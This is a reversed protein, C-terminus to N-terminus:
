TSAATQLQPTGNQTANEQPTHTSLYLYLSASPYWHQFLDLHALLLSTTHGLMRPILIGRIHVGVM